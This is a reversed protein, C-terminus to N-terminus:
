RYAAIPRYVCQAKSIAMNAGGKKLITLQCVVKTLYVKKM